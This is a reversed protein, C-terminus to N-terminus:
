RLRDYAALAAAVADSESPLSAARILAAARLRAALEGDTLVSRVAAALAPVDGPSVLLAADTGTVSGIAGVRSAVVPVGARLAEQVALSQGEWVSPLVFVDAAALLSPVDSRHGAFTVDAGLARARARLAGELPGSGAIMVHAGLDRWSAAAEILTAFGKQPVLRGVALVLPKGALPASGPEGPVSAPAGPVSAPAGPVSAPAGPVSAPAGPVSAPEGSASASAPEGPAPGPAAHLPAAVVTVGVRRAGLSRMRSALDDSVTLVMDAGRAVILGGAGYVARAVRGPPAANHVTVVLGPRRRMSRVALVAFAGARMGHAHVVDPRADRLVRRLTPATWPVFRVGPLAGFGFQRETSPPGAVVGGIGAALMRVHQGIGGVATGLVFAVKV